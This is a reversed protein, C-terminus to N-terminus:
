VDIRHELIAAVEDSNRETWPKALLLALRGTHGTKEIFREFVDSYEGANQSIM